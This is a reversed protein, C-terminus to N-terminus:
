YCTLTALLKKRSPVVSAGDFVSSSSTLLLSSFKNLHKLNADSLFAGSQLSLASSNNKSSTSGSIKWGSLALTLKLAVKRSIFTVGDM